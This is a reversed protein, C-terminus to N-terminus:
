TIKWDTKYDSLIISTNIEFESVFSAKEKMSRDFAFSSLLARTSDCFLDIDCNGSFLNQYLRSIGDEGNEWRFVDKKTFTIKPETTRTIAISDDNLHDSQLEVLLENGVLTLLAHKYYIKLRSPFSSLNSYSIEFKRNNSFSWLAYGDVVNLNPSRPNIKQFNHTSFVYLPKEGYLYMAFDLWHIGTAGFCKAGGLEVIKVIPGLAYEGSIENILNPFRTFRLHFNVASPIQRRKVFDNVWDVDALSSAVPKEILIRHFTLNQLESLIQKRDPAWSALVLIEFSESSLEPNNILELISSFHKHEGPVNELLSKTEQNPDIVIVSDVFNHMEILHRKGISGYGILLGRSVNTM